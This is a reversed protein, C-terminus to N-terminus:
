DKLYSDLLKIASEKLNGNELMDYSIFQKVFCARYEYGLVSIDVWEIKNNMFYYLISGLYNLDSFYKDKNTGETQKGIRTKIFEETPIGHVEYLRSRAKEYLSRPYLKEPRRSFEFEVPRGIAGETGKRWIDVGYKDKWDIFWSEFWNDFHEVIWAASDSVGLANLESPL